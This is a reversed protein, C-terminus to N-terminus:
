LEKELSLRTDASFRQGKKDITLTLSWYRIMGPWKRHAETIQAIKFTGMYSHLPCQCAPLDRDTSYYDIERKGRAVGAQDSTLLEDVIDPGQNEAVGPIIRKVVIQM